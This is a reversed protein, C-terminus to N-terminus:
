VKPYWVTLQGNKDFVPEAAKDWRRMLAAGARPTVDPTVLRMSEVMIEKAVEVQEVAEAEPVEMLIEDHIFLLAKSKGYLPSGMSPDWCARQVNFLATKAGEAGPTQLALGNAAACYDCGARYMGFPSTYHFLNCEREEGNIEKVVPGNFPDIIQTNIYKFYDRFEPFTELWVEKFEKAQRETIVVKYTAKAYRVFTAAGLGGPYGLNTPKAFTRYHKHYKRDEDSGNALASFVEFVQRPNSAGAHVCRTRFADDFTAALQSGLYGHVDIGENILDALLSYGFLDLCTQAATGLEMQNYDISAFLHGDRPIYCGRARPDVNQGNFSAFLKSAYSSTRGTSKIVDFNAHVIESSEGTEPDNMRPMETTVLKQLDQRHKYQELVPDLHFHDEFFEADLKLAGHPRFLWDRLDEVPTDHDPPERYYEACLRKVEHYLYAPDTAEGYQEIRKETALKETDSPPNYRLKVRPEGDDTPEANLRQALDFVYDSLAKKNLSPKKGATMKVPCDCEGSRACDPAHDRAGRAHPKPPSGPRLIGSKILLDLKEDALEEVLMKEIEAKRGLDVRVGWVTMLHLAFASCNQFTETKFPDVGKQEVLKQRRFEQGRYVGVVNLADDIAYQVAEDPWEETPMDALESYNIRWADEDDKLDSRDINLYYKELASLTYVLRSNSGDPNERFSLDGTDALNLLCERTRTDAFRGDSLMEWVASMLDPRHNVLVALDFSLNHAVLTDTSDTDILTDILAEIKCGGLDAVSALIAPTDAPAVSLCVLPPAVRRTGIRHTETDFGIIM